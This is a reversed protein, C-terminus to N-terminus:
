RKAIAFHLSSYLSCPLLSALFCTCVEHYQQYLDPQAQMMQFAHQGESTYLQENLMRFRGGSLKSRMQELLGKKKLKGAPLADPKEAPVAASAALQQRQKVASGGPKAPLTAGQKTNGSVAQAGSGAATLSRGHRTASLSEARATSTKRSLRAAPQAVGAEAAPQGQAETNSSLLAQQRYAQRKLRLRANRGVKKQKGKAATADPRHEGAAPIGAAQQPAPSGSQAQLNGQPCHTATPKSSIHTTTRSKKAKPQAGATLTPQLEPKAAARQKIGATVAMELKQDAKLGRLVSKSAAHAQPAKATEAGRQKGAQAFSLLQAAAQTSPSNDNGDGAEATSSLSRARKKGKVVQGAVFQSASSTDVSFKSQNQQDRYAKAEAQAPALLRLLPLVSVIVSLSTVM